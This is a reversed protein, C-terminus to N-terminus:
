VSFITWGGVLKVGTYPNFTSSRPAGTFALRALLFRVCGHYIESLKSIYCKISRRLALDEFLLGYWLTCEDMVKRRDSPLFTLSPLSVREHM